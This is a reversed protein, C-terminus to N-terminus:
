VPWWQAAQGGTLVYYACFSLSALWITASPASRVGEAIEDAAFRGRFRALAAALTDFIALKGPYVWECFKSELQEGDFPREPKLPKGAPTPRCKKYFEEFWSWKQSLDGVDQKRASAMPVLLDKMCKYARIKASVYNPSLRYTSALV